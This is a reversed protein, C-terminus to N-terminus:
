EVTVKQTLVKSGQRVQVLYVGAPLAADVALKRQQPAFEQRYVTRGQLNFVQVTAAGAANQSGLEVTFSGRPAPIPYLSVGTLLNAATTPTPTGVATVTWRQCTCGNYDWLGLQTGVVTSAVPVEVVRNGNVSAFVYTGNNARDLRFRQCTLGNDAFLQLKAGADPSCGSVDAALGGLANTIKYEGNGLATFNWQQCALGSRAGQAIM